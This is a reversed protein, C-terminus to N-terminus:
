NLKCTSLFYNLTLIQMSAPVASARSLCSNVLWSWTIMGEQNGFTGQLNVFIGETEALWCETNNDRIHYLYYYNKMFYCFSDKVSRRDMNATM